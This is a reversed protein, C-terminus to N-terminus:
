AMEMYLTRMQDPSVPHLSIMPAPIFAQDVIRLGPLDNGPLIGHSRLVQGMWADDRWETSWDPLEATAVLRCARNSMWIGPGGVLFGGQEVGAYDGSLGMGQRVLRDVRVFTDDDPRYMLDFGNEVMWRCIARMKHPMHVHDDPCGLEQGTFFKAIVNKHVECDKFWTERVASQRRNEGDVQLGSVGNEWTRGWKKFQLKRFEAYDLKDATPVAILIRPAPSNLKRDVHCTDGTHYVHSAPLIACVYGMDRYLKALAQEGCGQPDYGVQRGYSGIRKYDSLRRLGPAFSFGLGTPLDTYGEWYWRVLDLGRPDRDVRYPIRGNVLEYHTPIGRLWVQLVDPYKELLDLSAQMYGTDRFCWDDECHFIYPTKVEDYARDISYIQGRRTKNSLFKVNPLRPLCAPREAESDEVVVIERPQIDATAQFSALTRALLDHRNCSTIVLTYDM